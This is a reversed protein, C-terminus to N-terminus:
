IVSYKEMENIVNENKVTLMYRYLLDENTNNLSLLYQLNELKLNENKLENKFEIKRQKLTLKYIDKIHKEEESTENIKLTLNFGEM